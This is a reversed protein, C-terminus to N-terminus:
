IFLDIIMIVSFSLMIISIIKLNRIYVENNEDIEVKYAYRLGFSGLVVLILALIAGKIM